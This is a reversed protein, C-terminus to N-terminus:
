LFFFRFFEFKPLCVIVFHRLLEDRFKATADTVNIKNHDSGDMEAWMAISTMLSDTSGSL